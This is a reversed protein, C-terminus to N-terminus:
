MDEGNAQSRTYRRVQRYGRLGLNEDLELEYSSLVDTTEPIRSIEVVELTAVWGDHTRELASASEVAKGLLEQLQDRATRMAKGADGLSAGEVPETQEPQDPEEEQEQPEDQQERAQPQDQQEQEQQEPEEQQQGAQPEDDPDAEGSPEDGAKEAEAKGDDGNGHHTLARAAAAAAGVAAGAAAVKAAQKVAELPEGGEADSSDTTEEQQPEEAQGRRKKRSEQRKRQAETLDAM